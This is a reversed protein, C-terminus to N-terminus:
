PPIVKWCAPTKPTQRSIPRLCAPDITPSIFVDAWTPPRTEVTAYLRQTLLIENREVRMYVWSRSTKLFRAVDLADWLDDDRRRREVVESM